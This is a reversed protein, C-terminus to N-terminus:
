FAIRLSGRVGGPGLALDPVLSRLGVTPDRPLSPRTFFVYAAGAFSVVGVAAAIDAVAFRTRVTSVDGASCSPKCQALTTEFGPHAYLAALGVGGWTALGAVGVGGLLWALPPVPRRMGVNAAADAAPPARVTVHRDHEGQRVLVSTRYVGSATTLQVQHAGPDVLLARGDLSTGRREGDIDVAVDNRDRGEADIFAIVLSPTEAEVEAYWRVCDDRVAGPCEANGCRTLEIAAQRLHADKRDEQAAVYSSLCVLKEGARAERPVSLLALAAVVLAVVPRAARSKL